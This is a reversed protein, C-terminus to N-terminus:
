REVFTLLLTLWFIKRTSPHPSPIYVDHLFHSLNVETILLETSSILVDNFLGHIFISNFSTFNGVYHM